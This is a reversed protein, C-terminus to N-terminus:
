VMSALASALFVVPSNTRLMCAMCGAGCAIVAAVSGVCEGVVAGGGACACAVAGVGGELLADTRAWDSVVCGWADAIRCAAAWAVGVAVGVSAGVVGVFVGVAVAAGADAGIVSGACVGVCVGVGVGVGVAIAIARAALMGGAGMVASGAMLALLAALAFAAVSVLACGPRM